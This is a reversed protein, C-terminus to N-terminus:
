MGVVWAAVTSAAFITGLIPQMSFLFDRGMSRATMANITGVLLSVAIFVAITWWGYLTALKWLIAVGAPIVLWSLFNSYPGITLHKSTQAFSLLAGLALFCLLVEPLPNHM